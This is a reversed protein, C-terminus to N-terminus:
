VYDQERGIGLHTSEISRPIFAKICLMWIDKWDNTMDKFLLYRLDRLSNEACLFNKMSISRSHGPDGLM